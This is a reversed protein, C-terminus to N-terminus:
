VAPHSPRRTVLRPECCPPGGRGKELLRLRAKRAIPTTEIPRITSCESHGLRPPSFRHLNGNVHSHGPEILVRLVLHGLQAPIHVRPTPLSGLEDLAPDGPRLIPARLKVRHHLVHLSPPEIRDHAPLEIAETPVHPM